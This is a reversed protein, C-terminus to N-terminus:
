GKEGGKLKEKEGKLIEGFGEGKRVAGRKKEQERFMKDRQLNCLETIAKIILNM